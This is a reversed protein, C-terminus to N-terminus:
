TLARRTEDDAYVSDAYGCRPCQWVLLDGNADLVADATVDHAPVYLSGRKGNSPVHMTVVGTETDLRFPELCGSCDTKIVSM